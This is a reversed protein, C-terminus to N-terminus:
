DFFQLSPPFPPEDFHPCLPTFAQHQQQLQLQTIEEQQHQHQDQHQLQLQLQTQIKNQPLYSEYQVRLREYEKKFVPFVTSLKKTQELMYFYEEIQGLSFLIDMSIPLVTNLIMVCIYKYNSDNKVFDVVKLSWTKAKELDGLLFYVHAYATYIQIQLLRKIHISFINEDLSVTSSDISEKLQLLDAPIMNM